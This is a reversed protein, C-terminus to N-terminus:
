MKLVTVSTTTMLSHFTLYHRPIGIIEPNLFFERDRRFNNCYLLYHEDSGVQNRNCLNCLREDFSTGDYRGTGVPLAHNATRSKFLTLKDKEELQTLYKELNLSEKFCINRSDRIQILFVKTSNKNSSTSWSPSLM